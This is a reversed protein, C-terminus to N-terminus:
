FKNFFCESCTPDSRNKPIIQIFISFFSLGNKQVMPSSKTSWKKTVKQVGKPSWKPAWKRVLAEFVLFAVNEFFHNERPVTQMKESKLGGLSSRFGLFFSGFNVWFNVFKSGIKPNLNPGM